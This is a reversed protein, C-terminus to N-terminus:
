DLPVSEKELFRMVRTRSVHDERPTRWDGYERELYEEIPAPVAFSRGFLEVTDYPPEVDAAQQVLCYPEGMYDRIPTAVFRLDRHRMWGVIDVKACSRHAVVMRPRSFPQTFVEVDYGRVVLSRALALAANALDEALVGFDIDRETPTFGGDRYAGLATGQMLFFPVGLSDLVDAVELLVREGVGGKVYVSM